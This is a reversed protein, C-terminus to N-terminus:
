EMLSTELVKGLSFNELRLYYSACDVLSEMPCLGVIESGMVNVGYRKAEMKVAEFARYMATKSYDTLNMTVQTIGREPIEVPSAKIFRYGGNSHRITKAIISAIDINQTDLNINYAILPKRAGIAIAGANPHKKAQGFDPAWNPNEFKANM